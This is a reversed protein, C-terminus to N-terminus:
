PLGEKERPRFLIKRLADRGRALRSKVTGVPVGLARSIQAYDLGQVDAMMVVARFAIPVERLATFLARRDEHALLHQEATAADVLRALASEDLPEEVARERAARSRTFDVYANRVIAVNPHEAM